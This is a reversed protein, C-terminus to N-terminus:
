HDRSRHARAPRFYPTKGYIKPNLKKGDLEM